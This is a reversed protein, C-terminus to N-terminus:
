TEEDGNPLDGNPRANKVLCRNKPVSLVYMILKISV